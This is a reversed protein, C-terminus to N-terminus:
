NIDLDRLDAAFNAKPTAETTNKSPEGIIDHEQM